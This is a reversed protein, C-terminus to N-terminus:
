LITGDPLTIKIELKCGLAALLSAYESIKLNDAILKRSLSAPLQNTLSALERQNVGLASM